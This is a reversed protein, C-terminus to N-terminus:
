ALLPRYELYGQMGLNHIVSRAIKITEADGSKLVTSLIKKLDDHWLIVNEFDANVILQTSQIVLKPYKEALRALRELTGLKPEFNGHSLQLTTHLHELAWQDDFHNSNFWWGYQTLERKHQSNDPKSISRDWLLELRLREDNSIEKTEKLSQGLYRVMRGLLDDSARNLFIDLIGNEEVGIRGRWYLQMLHHILGDDPSNMMHGKGVLRQEGLEHQVASLYVDSLVDFALNSAYNATLYAVWAIDRLTRKESGTPFIRSKNSEVWQRDVHILFPLLEGYILRMDLSPQSDTDLGDSLLKEAEPVSALSFNHEQLNDRCWEVYQFAVRMARAETRNVSHTWIDKSQSDPDTYPIDQTTQQNDVLAAIISWVAIRSAFPIAKERFGQEFLSIIASRSWGWDPDKTWHDGTRGPIEIPQTVVWLALDLVPVWDFAIRGRVASEFGQIACRVYTPDTEKLKGAQGSFEAPRKAVVETLVAGLGEESPSFPSAEDPKSHWTTLYDIVDAVPMGALEASQKPSKSSLQYTGSRVRRRDAPDGYKTHLEEYREKWGSELYDKIPTLRELQWAKSAEEAEAESLGREVLRDRNLGEEIWKLIQERQPATITGFSRTLLSDYEYRLGLDEFTDRNVLKESVGTGALESHRTLLELEIRRFVKFRRAGLTKRVEVLEAVGRSAYADAYRLVAPVLFRKPSETTEGSTLSSAWIYSYDEITAAGKQSKQELSLARELITSLLEVFSVGLLKVLEPGNRQIIWQCAYSAMRTRAEHRYDPNLEKLSEPIPRPDPIVELANRLLILASKQKGGRALHVALDGVIHERMMYPSRVMKAIRATLRDSIEPPMSLAADIFSQLIYPNESDPMAALVEAVMTPNNVAMRALYKIAPWARFEITGQDDDRIPEPPKSFWGKERLPEIWAPNDLKEFFHRQQHFHVMSAVAKDVIEPTPTKWSKM